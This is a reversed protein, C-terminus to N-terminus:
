RKMCYGKNGHPCRRWHTKECVGKEMTGNQRKQNGPQRYYLGKESIPDKVYDM